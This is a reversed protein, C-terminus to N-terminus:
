DNTGATGGLTETSVSGVPAIDTYCPVGHRSEEVRSVLGLSANRELVNREFANRELRDLPSVVRIDPRSLVHTHIMLAYPLWVSAEGSALDREHLVSRSEVLKRLPEVLQEPLPAFRSKHGKGNHIEILMQDFDIDKVRLRM